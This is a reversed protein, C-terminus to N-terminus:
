KYAVFIGSLVKSRQKGDNSHIPADIRAYDTFIAGSAWFQEGPPYGEFPASLQDHQGIGLLHVAGFIRQLGPREWRAKRAIARIPRRAM